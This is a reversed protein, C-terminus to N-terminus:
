HSDIACVLSHSVTHLLTRLAGNETSLLGVAAALRKANLTGYVPCVIPGTALLVGIGEGHQALAANGELERNISITHGSTNALVPCMYSKEVGGNCLAPTHDTHLYLSGIFTERLM